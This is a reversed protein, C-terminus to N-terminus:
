GLGNLYEKVAADTSQVCATWAAGGHQTLCARMTDTGFTRYAEEEAQTLDALKTVDVTGYNDPPALSTYQHSEAGGNTSGSGVLRVDAWTAAAVQTGRADFAVLEDHSSHQAVPFAAIGHLPQQTLIGGGAQRLEVTTATAPLGTWYVVLDDGGLEPEPILPLDVAIPQARGTTYRGYDITSQQGYGDYFPMATIAFTLRQGDALQLTVAGPKVIDTYLRATAVQTLPSATASVADDSVVHRLTTMSVGIGVLAAVGIAGKAVTRRRKRQAARADIETLRLMPAPATAASHRLHEELRSELDTSM